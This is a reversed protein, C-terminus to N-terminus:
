RIVTNGQLTGEYCDSRSLFLWKMLILLYLVLLPGVSCASASELYFICCLILFKVNAEDLACFSCFIYKPNLNYLVPLLFFSNNKSNYRLLRLHILNCVVNKNYNQRLTIAISNYFSTWSLSNYQCLEPSISNFMYMWIEKLVLKIRSLVNIDSWWIIWIGSHFYIFSFSSWYMTISQGKAEIIYDMYANDGFVFGSNCRWNNVCIIYYGRM